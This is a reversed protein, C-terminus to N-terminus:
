RIGVITMDDRCGDPSPRLGNDRAVQRVERGIRETGEVEFGDMGIVEQEILEVEAGNNDLVHDPFLHRM